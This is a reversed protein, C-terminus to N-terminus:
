WGTGVDTLSIARLISNPIAADIALIREHDTTYDQLMVLGMQKVFVYVIVKEDAPIRGLM